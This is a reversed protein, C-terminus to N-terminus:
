VRFRSPHMAVARQRLSARTPVSATRGRLSKQTRENTPCEHPSACVCVFVIRLTATRQPAGLGCELWVHVAVVWSPEQANALLLSHVRSYPPLKDACNTGRDPLFALSLQRFHCLSWEDGARGDVLSTVSGDHWVGGGWGCIRAAYRSNRHPSGHTKPAAECIATLTTLLRTWGTATRAECV